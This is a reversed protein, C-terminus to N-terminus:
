LRLVGVASFENTRPPLVAFALNLELAALVVDDVIEPSSPWGSWADGFETIERSDSLMYGPAVESRVV